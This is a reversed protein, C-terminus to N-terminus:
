CGIECRKGTISCNQWIIAKSLRTSRTLATMKPLTKPYRWLDYTYDITMFFGDKRKDTLRQHTVFRFFSIGV